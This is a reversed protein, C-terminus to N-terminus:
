LVIKVEEQIISKVNNLSKQKINIKSRLYITLSLGFDRKVHLIDREICRSNLPEYKELCADIIRKAYAKNLNNIEINIVKESNRLEQSIALLSNEIVNFHTVLKENTQDCYSELEKRYTKLTYAKEQRLHARLDESIKNVAEKRKKERSKFFGKLWGITTGTVKMVLGVPPSFFIIVSSAVNLLIQGIGLLDRFLTGINQKTFSPRTDNLEAILILEQGIESVVEKSLENFRLKSFRVAEKLKAQLNIDLCEQTWNKRIIDPEKDWNREAFNGTCSYAIKFAEEIQQCLLILCDAKASEIQKLLSLKKKRIQQSLSYFKNYESNLWDKPKKIISVTSGLLNQSRRLKGDEIISARIANLFTEIRSYKLLKNSEEDNDSQQSLQAALLMVPIIPFYAAYQTTKISYYKGIETRLRNIHGVLGNEGYERFLKEPHKLFYQLRRSDKLNYQINLLVILPKNYSKLLKMWELETRQTSDDTVVYCILDAEDIIGQAIQEDRRGDNRAAGIGPTDIIRINEWQYIRNFRTTQQKGTGISDWGEGTIVAHLTSKGAKTKGMFAINFYSLARQKAQFSQKLSKLDQSIDDILHKKTTELEEIIRRTTSSNLTPNIHFIQDTVAQLRKQLDTLENYTIILASESFKYDQFGVLFCERIADSYDTGMLLFKHKIDQIEQSVKRPVNKKIASLIRVLLKKVKKKCKSTINKNIKLSQNHLSLQFQNFNSLHNKIKFIEDENANWYKAIKLIIRREQFSIFGDAKVIDLIHRFVSNRNQPSINALADELLILSQNQSFIYNIQKYTNERVNDELNLTSIISNLFKLEASHIQNNACIVHALIVSEYSLNNKSEQRM